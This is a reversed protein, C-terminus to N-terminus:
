LPMCQMGCSHDQLRDSVQKQTSHVLVLPCEHMEEGLFEEERMISFYPCSKYSKLLHGKDKESLQHWIIRAGRAGSIEKHPNSVCRAGTRGLGQLLRPIAKDEAVIAYWTDASQPIDMAVQIAGSGEAM